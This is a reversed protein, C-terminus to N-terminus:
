GRRGVVAAPDRRPQGVRGLPEILEGVDGLEHTVVRGLVPETAVGGPAPLLRHRRQISERRFGSWGGGPETANVPGPRQPGM